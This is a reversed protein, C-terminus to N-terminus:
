GASIDAGIGKSAKHTEKRAKDSGASRARRAPGAPPPPHAGPLARPHQQPSRASPSPQARGPQRESFLGNLLRRGM